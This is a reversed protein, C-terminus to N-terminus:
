EVFDLSKSHALVFNGDKNRSYKELFYSGTPRPKLKGIVFLHEGDGSVVFGEIYKLETNVKKSGSEDLMFLTYELFREDKEEAVAHDVFCVSGKADCQIKPEKLYKKLAIFRNIEEIKKEANIDHRLIVRDIYMIEEKEEIDQLEMKKRDEGFVETYEKSLGAIADSIIFPTSFCCHTSRSLRQVNKKENSYLSWSFIYTEKYFDYVGLFVFDGNRLPFFYSIGKEFSFM